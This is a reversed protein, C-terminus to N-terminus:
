MARDLAACDLNVWHNPNKKIDKFTKIWRTIDVAGRKPTDYLLAEVDALGEAYLIALTMEDKRLAEVGIHLGMSFQAFNTQYTNLQPGFEDALLLTDGHEQFRKVMDRALRCMKTNPVREEGLAFQILVVAFVLVVYVRYEHM